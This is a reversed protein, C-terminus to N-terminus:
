FKFFRKLIRLTGRYYKFLLIKFIKDLGFSYLNKNIFLNKSSDFFSFQIHYFNNNKFNKIIKLRDPIFEKDIWDDFELTVQLTNKSLFKINEDTLIKFESGEIDIKLIDIIEFNSVRYLDQLSITKVNIAESKNKSFVASSAMTNNKDLYFSIIENSKLDVCLNLLKAKILPKFVPNAEIGLYKYSNFTDKICKEFSGEHYGLDIVCVDNKIKLFHHNDISEVIKM